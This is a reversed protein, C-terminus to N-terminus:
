PRDGFGLLWAIDTPPLQRIALAAPEELFLVVGYPGRAASEAAIMAKCTVYVGVSNLRDLLSRYRVADNRSLYGVSKGGVEVTVANKDFRNGPEPRVEAQTYERVEGRKTKTLARLFTQHHSEGVVSVWDQLGKWYADIKAAQKATLLLPIAARGPQRLIISTGCSPCPTWKRPKPVEHLRERCQPCLQIKAPVTGLYAAPLQVPLPNPDPGGTSKGFLFDFFGM